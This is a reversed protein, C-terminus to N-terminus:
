EDDEFKKKKNIIVKLLFWIKNSDEIFEYEIHDSKRAIEYFGIGGGKDHSYIGSKRIERYRKKLGDSDLQKIEQLRKSIVEKQKKTIINASFVRYSKDDATVAIMGREMLPSYKMVNQSMEVFVVFLKNLSSMDVKEYDGEKELIDSLSVILTQTLIGEYDFIVKYNKNKNVKEIFDAFIM